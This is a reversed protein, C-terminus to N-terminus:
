TRRRLSFFASYDNPFVAVMGPNKLPKAMVVVIAISMVIIVPITVVVIVVPGHDDFLSVISGRLPRVKRRCNEIDRVRSLPASVAHKPRM